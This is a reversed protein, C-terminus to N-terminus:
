GYLEKSSTSYGSSTRTSGTRRLARARRPPFNPGRGNTSSWASRRRSRADRRRAARRHRRRRDLRRHRRRPVRGRAPRAGAGRDRGTRVARAVAVAGRRRRGTSRTACSPASLKGRWDVDVGDRERKARADREEADGEGAVVLKRGSAAAAHLALAGILSRLGKRPTLRSAFLLTRARPRPATGARVGCRAAAAAHDRRPGSRDRERRVDRAHARQLRARRRRARDPRAGSRSRRHSPVVVPAPRSRLRARLDRRPVRRGDARRVTREFQPFVRDGTPCFARHDHIRALWRPGDARVADLVAGDFVSATVVADPPDRRLEDAVRARRRGVAARGRGGLEVARARVGFGAGDSVERALLHVTGRSALGPCCPRGTASQAASTASATASCRLACQLRPVRSPQSFAPLM